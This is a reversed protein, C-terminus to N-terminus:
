VIQINAGKLLQDCVEFSSNCRQQQQMTANIRIKLLNSKLDVNKAM